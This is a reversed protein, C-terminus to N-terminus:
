KWSSGIGGNRSGSANDDAALFYKMFIGQGVRDGKNIVFPTDGGNIFAYVIHGDNDPNNYYDSDIVGIGNPLYLKNKIGMSSRNALQLFEDSKMYAKIGTPVVYVKGDPVITVTEAAEFDYGASKSTARKPLNIGKDEWGNAIEFGRKPLIFEGLNISSQEKYVRNFDLGITSKKSEKVEVSTTM